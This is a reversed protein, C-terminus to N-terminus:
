IDNRGLMEQRIEVEKDWNGKIYALIISLRIFDNLSYFIGQTNRLFYHVKQPIEEVTQINTKRLFIKEEENKTCAM